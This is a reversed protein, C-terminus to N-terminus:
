GHSLGRRAVPTIFIFTAAPGIPAHIPLVMAAAAATTM